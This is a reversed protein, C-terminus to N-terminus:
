VNQVSNKCYCQFQPPIEGTSQLPTFLMWCYRKPKMPKKQLINIDHSHHQLYSSTTVPQNIHIYDTLILTSMPRPWHLICILLGYDMGQADYSSNGRVHAPTVSQTFEKTKSQDTHWILGTKNPQFGCKGTWTEINSWTHNIMFWYFYDVLHL